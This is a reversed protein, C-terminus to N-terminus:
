FDIRCAKGSVSSRKSIQTSDPMDSSCAPRLTLWSIPMCDTGMASSSVNVMASIDYRGSLRCAKSFRALRVPSSSTFDSVM